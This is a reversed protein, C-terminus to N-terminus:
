ATAFGRHTISAVVGAVKVEVVVEGRTWRTTEDDPAGLEALVAGALRERDEVSPYFAVLYLRGRGNFAYQTSMAIGCFPEPDLGTVWWDGNRRATGPFRERFEAVTAGWAVGSWGSEVGEPEGPGSLGGDGVGGAPVGGVSASVAPPLWEGSVPEGGGCTDVIEAMSPRDAPNRALCSAVLSRFAGDVRSLDPEEHVIRYLVAAPHGEGFPAAGGSAFALVSGLSFVDSAPGVERDGRAQEPSMYAPTGRIVGTTTQSTAELARAIGFDIVRPGDGALIVNGPKLDRHVLGRDHIADLGEALGAVLVRVAGAPLAGHGDVAERLSPGPVYASVLWPREAYPDSDVVQATFFGGVRRAAAVERAFSRRFGADAGYEARVVKVAVPRGGASRGLFVDGMGGSGLRGVLRYGGVREPDGPRLAEM